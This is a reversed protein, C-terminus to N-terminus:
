RTEWFHFSGRPDTRYKQYDLCSEKFFVDLDKLVMIATNTNHYTNVGLNPHLTRLTYGDALRISQTKLEVIGKVPDIPNGFQNIFLDRIYVDARNNVLNNHNFPKDLLLADAVQSVYNAYEIVDGGYAPGRMISKDSSFISAFDSPMVQRFANGISRNQNDEVTTNNLSVEKQKFALSTM